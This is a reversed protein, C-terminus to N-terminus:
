EPTGIPAQRKAVFEAQARALWRGVFEPEHKRELTFENDYALWVRLREWLTLWHLQANRTHLLPGDIHNWQIYPVADPNFPVSIGHGIEIYDPRKQSDDSSWLM